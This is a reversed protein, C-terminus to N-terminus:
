PEFDASDSLASVSLEDLQVKVLPHGALLETISFPMLLGGTNRYDSFEIRRQLGDTNREKPYAYDEVALVHFSRSDIYFDRRGQEGGSSRLSPRPPAASLRVGLAPRGDKTVTGLFSVGVSSDRLAKAVHSLPFYFTEVNAVEQHMLPRTTGDIERKFGRGDKVFWWQDNGDSLHADIRLQQYGRGKLNVTGETGEETWYFTISGSGSFGPLDAISQLGGGSRVVQELIALAQPDRSLARTTSQQAMSPCLCIWILLFPALYRPRM